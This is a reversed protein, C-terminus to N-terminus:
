LLHEALIQHTGSGLVALQLVLDAQKVFSVEELSDWHVLEQGVQEIARVPGAIPQLVLEIEDVIVELLAKSLKQVILQRIQVLYRDESVHVDM